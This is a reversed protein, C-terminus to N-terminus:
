GLADQPDFHITKTKWQEYYPAFQPPVRLPNCKLVARVASEAHPQWAPDSPPNVVTPHGLLSGDANFVVRVLAVYHAGDPTTPPPTWCNLYSETLWSDLAAALSPSMRAANQTPLGQPALTATQASKSKDILKSIASPDFSRTAPKVPDETKTKELLKAMADPKPKAPPKDPPPDKPREPPKEVVKPRTPPTPPQEEEADPKPPPAPIPKPPPEPAPKLAPKPPAADAPEQTPRLPPMPAPTVSAQEVPKVPPAPPPTQAQEVPKVPPTPPPAPAEAIPKEPAPKAPKADREGKMIENFQTDTITEVPISEPTDDFKPAAFSFVIAGLLAAHLAGSVLYGSKTPQDNV